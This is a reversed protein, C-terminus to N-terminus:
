PYPPHPPAPLLIAAASALPAPASAPGMVINTGSAIEIPQDLSVITATAKVPTTTGTMFAVTMGPRLFHAAEISGTVNVTTNVTTSLTVSAGVQGLIGTGDLFSYINLYKIANITAM